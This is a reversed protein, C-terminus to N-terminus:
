GSWKAFLRLVWLKSVEISLELRVLGLGHSAFIIRTVRGGNDLIVDPSIHARRVCFRTSFGTFCSGTMIFM